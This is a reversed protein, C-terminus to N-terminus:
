GDNFAILREPFDYLVKQQILFVLHLSSITQIVMVVGGGSYFELLSSFSLVFVHENKANFDEHSGSRKWTNVPRYLM